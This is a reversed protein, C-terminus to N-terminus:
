ALRQQRTEEKEQRGWQRATEIAAQGEHATPLKAARCIGGKGDGRGTAVSIAM